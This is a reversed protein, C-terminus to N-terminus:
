NRANPWTDALRYGLPFPDDPDLMHQHTGTIWATGSIIPIIGARGGVDVASEIRCDFATGIISTGIFRDGVQMEGKAHLVAMRASCGTGTPSRDIKGPRIAVANAGHLVGDKMEVPAAIQCFSFHTWDLVPHKFGLQADAAATIKMGMEAIDRAEDPAIALGLAKADAIVFSDGGFATDVTLTGIGRVELPVQLRDAFSAVNRVFVREVKGNRCLAKVEILGAPPELVLTTEPELM